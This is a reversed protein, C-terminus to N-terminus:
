FVRPLAEMGVLGKVPISAISYLTETALIVRAPIKSFIQKPLMSTYTVIVIMRVGWKFYKINYANLAFMIITIPEKM